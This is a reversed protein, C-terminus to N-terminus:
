KGHPGRRVLETAAARALSTNKTSDRVIQELSTASIRTVDVKAKGSRALQSVKRASRDIGDQAM